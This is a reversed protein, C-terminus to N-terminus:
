IPLQKRKRRTFSRLAQEDPTATGRIHHVLEHTGADDLEDGRIHCIPTLTSM